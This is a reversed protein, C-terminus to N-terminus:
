PFLANKSNKWLEGRSWSNGDFEIYSSGRLYVYTEKGSTVYLDPQSQNSLEELTTLDIEEPNGSLGASINGQNERRQEWRQVMTTLDEWTIPRKYTEKPFFLLLLFLLAGSLLASLLIAKPQEGTERRRASQSFALTLVVFVAALLASLAPHTNLVVFCPAIGLLLVLAMPATRKWLRVALASIYTELVALAALAPGIDKPDTDEIVLNAFLHHYVKDYLACLTGWLSRFGEFVEKRFLWLAFLLLALVGLAYYKGIKGNFLLCFFLALVPVLVPVALPMSFGFASTLCYLSGLVGACILAWELLFRLVYNVKKM